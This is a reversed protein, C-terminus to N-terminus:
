CRNYVRSVLEPCVIYPNLNRQHEFITDVRNRENDDVPDKHHWELLTEVDMVQRMDYQPYMTNFYAVARAVNGKSVDGPEFTDDYNSKECLEDENEDITDEYLDIKEGFDDLFQAEEDDIDAFKKNSRHTNLKYQSAFCHNLDSKMPLKGRFFSQPWVHECNIKTDGGKLDHGGYIDRVAIKEYLIRRMNRYSLTVYSKNQLPSYMMYLKHKLEDGMLGNTESLIAERTNM